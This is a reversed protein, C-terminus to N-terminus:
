KLTAEGVLKKIKEEKFKSEANKLNDKKLESELEKIKTEL